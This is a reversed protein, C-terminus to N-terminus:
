QVGMLEVDFILTAKAPIIPPRGQEGYALQYPIILRMKDGVNMMALGEDWGKIVMGSGLTFEIPQGREVSSDFLKWTGDGLFGSYHVSVKKGNEAKAGTGKSVVVYKLGSATSDVKRGKLDWPKLPEKVDMLKVTFILTANQPIVPPYGNAGYGLDPPITFVASDGVQLLAVGEDWGKIVQGAALRFSFPKGRKYSTDFVSDTTLKGVYHVSVMDGANAKKGDGKKLIKYKLGSATSYEKNLIISSNKKEDPKQNKKQSFTPQSIFIAASIFFLISKKM